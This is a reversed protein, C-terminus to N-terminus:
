HRLDAQVLSHETGAEEQKIQALFESAKRFSMHKHRVMLRACDCGFGLRMAQFLMQREKRQRADSTRWRWSWVGNLDLKSREENGVVVSPCERAVKQLFVRLAPRCYKWEMILRGEENAVLAQKRPDRPRTDPTLPPICDFVGEAAETPEIVLWELIRPRPGDLFVEVTRASISAIESAELMIVDPEDADRWGKGRRVSLRVCVRRACAAVTWNLRPSRGRWFLYGNLAVFVLVSLWAAAQASVTLGLILAILVGPANAAISLGLMSGWSALAGASAICRAAEPADIRVLKM